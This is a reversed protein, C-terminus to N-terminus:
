KRFSYAFAKVKFLHKYKPEQYLPYFYSKLRYYGINCIYNIAKAEDEITLGKKKLVAILEEATRYEKNFKPM